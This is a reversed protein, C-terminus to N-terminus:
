ISMVDRTAVSVSRTHDMVAELQGAQLESQWPMEGLEQITKALPRHALQHALPTLNPDTPLRALVRSLSQHTRNPLLSANRAESHVHCSSLLRISFTLRQVLFAWSLSTAGVAKERDGSNRFLFSNAGAVGSETALFPM